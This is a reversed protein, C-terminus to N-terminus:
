SHKILYERSKLILKSLPEATKNNSNALKSLTLISQTRTGYNPLEPTDICISSLAQELAPPVGTDPLQEDPAQQTDTLVEWAAPLWYDKDGNHFALSESILPLVEQRVWGRLRESKFWANDPQGNSIIHLGSHLATPPYGRNNVIVAQKDDGVILNFGAYAQLNVQRAYALPSLDSTLFGTVLEGRSHQNPAAQVGDRFNLVAAWRGNQSSVNESQVNDSSLTQQHIGLWTGGSQDDRGAYIPMDIWQHAPTTPRQLFEDRNSLLVLPMEDFLQWAIAAICM